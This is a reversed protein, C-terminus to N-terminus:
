KLVDINKMRAPSLATPNTLSEWVFIKISYNGPASPLWSQAVRLSEKPPLESTVWSLSVTIGESDAVQVIYTFPQKKTQSNTLESQILLQEGTFVQSVTEGFSNLLMPEAAPARQTSPVYKGFIATAIVTKTELTTIGNTSLKAPEPLTDDVYSISVTDGDSAKLRNGSSVDTLTFLLSEEFIGNNRDAERLVLKLGRTDTDSWIKVNIVNPADPNTSKDRDVVTIRASDTILYSSKDFSATAEHYQIFVTETIVNKEDVRYSITIVEDRQVQIDGIYRSPDPTLRIEKQFMGTNPGTERLTFKESRIAGSITVQISEITESDTDLSSDTLSIIVKDFPTYASRDLKLVPTSTTFNPLLLLMMLISFVAFLHKLLM